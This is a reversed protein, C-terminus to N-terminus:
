RQRAKKAVNRLKRRAVPHTERRWVPLVKALERAVFSRFWGAALPMRQRIRGRRRRRADARAVNPPPAANAWTAGTHKEARERDRKAQARSAALMTEVHAFLISSRM